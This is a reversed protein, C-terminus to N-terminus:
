NENMENINLNELNDDNVNDEDKKENIINNEKEKENDNKKEKEDDKEENMNEKENNKNEKEDNKIEDNKNAKDDNKNEIEDNKNEIEGVKNDKVNSGNEEKKEKEKEKEEQNSKNYENIKTMFKEIDDEGLEYYDKFEQIIQKMFDYKCKFDIMYNLYINLKSIVIDNIRKRDKEEDEKQSPFLDYSKQYFMEEIINYKILEKWFEYNTFIKQNILNNQIFLKKKEKEKEGIIQYFTTAFNLILKASEYDKEIQLVKLGEKLLNSINDFSTENLLSSNINNLCHNNIEKLLQRRSKKLLLLKNIIEKDENSLKENKFIANIIGKIEDLIHKNKNYDSNPNMENPREKTFINSMFLKANNIINESYKHNINDEKSITSPQKSIYPIYQYKYLQTINTRNSSIYKNIDKNININEFIASRKNIDYQMNRLYSVQFVIFKRFSDKINEGIEKELDQIENLNRKKMEIYDDQLNNTKDILEVYLKENEKAKKLANLMNTEEKKILNNLSKDNKEKYSDAKIKSEEAEKAFNHFNNKANELKAVSTQYAKELSNMEYVNYNLKQLSTDYLNTLPKILDDKISVLFESLYNYQNLMDNKFSNFGKFLSEFVTIQNKSNHVKKLFLAYNQQYNYQDTYLNIIDKLGHLHFYLTKQAKNYNNWLEVSYYM